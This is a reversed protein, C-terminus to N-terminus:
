IHFSVSYPGVGPFACFGLWMFLVTHFLLNSQYTPNRLNDRSLLFEFGAVAVNGLLMAYIFDPSADRYGFWVMANFSISTIAIVGFLVLSRRPIAPRGSFLFWSWCVFAIAAPATHALEWFVRSTCCWHWTRVLIVVAPVVTVPNHPGYWSPPWGIITARAALAVLVSCLFTALVPRAKMSQLMDTSVRLPALDGAV